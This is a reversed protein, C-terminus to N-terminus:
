PLFRDPWQPPPFPCSEPARRGPQRRIGAVLRYLGDRVPRPVRVGLAALRGWGGGLRGLVYLVADSRVLFRGGSLVCVSDPPAEGRLRAFTGGGLPAFRFRGGPDRALVWRVWWRCLGCPEDFFVLDPELM